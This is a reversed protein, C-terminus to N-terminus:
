KNGTGGSSTGGLGGCRDLFDRLGEAFAKKKLTSYHNGGPIVLVSHHGMVGTMADVGRKLPDRSGAVSLSPVTNERLAAESVELDPLSAIVEGISENDNLHRFVRNMVFVQVRGLGKKKLGVEELLLAYDGKGRIAKSVDNLRRQREPTMREWGAGCPAVSLLREPHMVALNLVIFGGMSYGIVHAKEIGLHDMLRVVDEMMERGYGAPNHPKDSLGHGRVDLMIVRHGRSLAKTIGPRRWNLDANVAVGHVLVVPEGAGESTYHIRVGNSNFYEGQTRHFVCGTMGAVIVLTILGRSGYLISSKVM